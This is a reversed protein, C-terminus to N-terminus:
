TPTVFVQLHLPQSLGRLRERTGAALGSDGSSVMLIADLLSAFEYGSPVGYFRVRRDSADTVVVAPVKDVGYAAVAEPELVFDHVELTLHPSLEAVEQFLRHATRCTDCELEQTFFVLRVPSRMAGLRKRVEQQVRDDLMM